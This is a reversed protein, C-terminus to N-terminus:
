KQQELKYNIPRNWKIVTTLKTYYDKFVLCNESKESFWCIEAVHPERNIWYTLKVKRRFLRILWNLHKPPELIDDTEMKTAKM